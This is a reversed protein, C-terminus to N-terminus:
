FDGHSVLGGALERLEASVVQANFGATTVRSLLSLLDAERIIWFLSFCDHVLISQTFTIESNAGTLHMTKTLRHM